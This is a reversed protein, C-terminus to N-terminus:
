NKAAFQDDWQKKKVNWIQLARRGPAQVAWVKDTALDSLAKAIRDYVEIGNSDIQEGILSLTHCVEGKIKYGLSNAQAFSLYSLCKNVIQQLLPLLNNINFFGLISQVCM